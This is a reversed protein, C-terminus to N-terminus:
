ASRLTPVHHHRGVHGAQRACRWSPADPAASSCERLPDHDACFWSGTLAVMRVGLAGCPQGVPEGNEGAKWRGAYSCVQPGPKVEALWERVRQRARNDDVAEELMRRARLQDRVARENHEEESLSEEYDWPM